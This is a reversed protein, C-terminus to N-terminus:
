AQVPTLIGDRMGLTWREKTVNAVCHPPQKNEGFLGPAGIIICWGIEAQILRQNTGSVDDAVYFCSDGKLLLSVIVNKFIKDDRHFDLLGGIPYKHLRIEQFNLPQVFVNEDYTLMTKYIYKQIDLVAKIINPSRSQVTAEFFRQKVNRPGVEHEALRLNYASAENLIRSCEIPKFFPFSTVGRLHLEEFNEKNM